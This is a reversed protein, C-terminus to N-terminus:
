QAVKNIERTISAGLKSPKPNEILMITSGIALVMMVAILIAKTKEKM